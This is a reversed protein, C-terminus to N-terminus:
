FYLKCSLPILKVLFVTEEKLILLDLGSKRMFV